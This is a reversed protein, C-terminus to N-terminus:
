RWRALTGAVDVRYLELSRRPDFREFLQPAAESINRRLARHDHSLAIIAEAIAAADRPPVARAVDLGDLYGDIATKETFLVPVGAFLAEVYVMGFTENLSPMLLAKYGPLMALLDANAIRGLLTVHQALGYKAVLREANAVSEATGGGILDLHLTADRAVARAFGDLLWILGKRKWTDLNFISVFRNGEPDSRPITPAINRVINPLLRQKQDLGPIHRRFEDRFWASVFYIKEADRCLRRLFPRLEPKNRVVKTEVEGRVSVFLPVRFHRAIYWGAIGEFTLKHAHVLDPRIGERDLLAITRRAAARMAHKLGLGLPLGFYPFDFLRGGPAACETVGLRTLRPRRRYAIVVNDYDTLEDVMWEIATTTRPRQPTNYDVALHLITARNTMKGIEDSASPPM